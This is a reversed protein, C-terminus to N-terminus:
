LLLIYVEAHKLFKNLFHYSYSFTLNFAYELKSSIQYGALTRNFISGKGILMPLNAPLTM